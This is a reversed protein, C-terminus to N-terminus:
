RDSWRRSDRRGSLRQLRPEGNAYLADMVDRRLSRMGATSVQASTTELQLEPVFVDVSVADVVVSAVVVVTAAAVVVVGAAVVAGGVVAAATTVLAGVVVM